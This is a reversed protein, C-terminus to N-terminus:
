EKFKYKIEIINNDIYIKDILFAMDEKTFNGISLSKYIKRAKKMSEKYEKEEEPNLINKECIELQNEIEKRKNVLSKYSEVYIEEDIEGNLRKNYLKSIEFMVTRKKNDLKKSLKEIEEKKRKKHRNYVNRKTRQNLLFSELKEKLDNLVIEEVIHYRHRKSNQCLEISSRYASCSLVIKDRKRTKGMKRKCCNCYIFDGLLTDVNPESRKKNNYKNNNHIAEFINRDIIPEHTNETIYWDEKKQRIVKTSRYSIKKDKGMCTDGVYVRKSLLRAVGDGTWIDIERKKFINLYRAPTIVKEKNLKIAIEKATMGHYKMMFIRKVIKSAEKDIILKGPSEPDHKYGFPPIPAYYYGEQMKRHKTKKIGKSTERCHLENFLGKFPAFSNQAKDDFNDVGDLVAIYRIKKNPFIREIYDGTDIYNRGLRALNKTIILNIKKSDLENLMKKFSPRDFNSGSYGDDVYEYCNKYIFNDQLYDYIIKRQNQISESEDEGDDHSLRLYIAINDVEQKLM